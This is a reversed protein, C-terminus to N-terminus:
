KTKHEILQNNHNKKYKQILDNIQDTHDLFDSNGKNLQIMTIKNDM